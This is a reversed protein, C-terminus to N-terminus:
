TPINKRVMMGIILQYALRVVGNHISAVKYGQMGNEVNGYTDKIRQELAYDVVKGLYFDQQNPGHM